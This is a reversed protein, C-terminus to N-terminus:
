KTANTEKCGLEKRLENSHDQTGFLDTTSIQHIVVQVYDGIKAGLLTYFKIYDDM